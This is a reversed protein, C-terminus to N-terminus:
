IDTSSFAVRVTSFGDVTFSQTLAYSGRDIQDTM